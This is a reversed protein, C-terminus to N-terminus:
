LDKPDCPGEAEEYLSSCAVFGQANSYNGGDQSCICKM